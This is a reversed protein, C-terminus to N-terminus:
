IFGGINFANYARNQFREVTILARRLREKREEDLEDPNIYNDFTKNKKIYKMQFILRTEMLTYYADELEECEKDSIMGKDRIGRIRGLTGTHKLGLHLSFLRAVMILPAWGNIKLNFKGKYIGSKEVRFRKFFGIAVPTLLSSRAIERMTDVSTHVYERVFDSFKEGMEMDGFVPRSDTLILIDLLTLPGKGYKMKAIIRGKWTETDGRWKDNQPMIGGKCKKIGCRDLKESVRESLIQFYSDILDEPTIDQIPKELAKSTLLENKKYLEKARERDEDTIKYILLNDQDSSFSRERRGESGCAIWCWRKCPIPGFGEAKMEEETLKILRSSLKDGSVFTYYHLKKVSPDNQFDEMLFNRLDKMLSELEEETSTDMREMFSYFIKEKEEEKEARENLEQSLSRLVDIREHRTLRPANETYARDVIRKITEVLRKGEM